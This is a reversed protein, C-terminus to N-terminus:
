VRMVSFPCARLAGGPWGIGFAAMCHLLGSGKLETRWNRRNRALDINKRTKAAGTGDGSRNFVPWFVEMQPKAGNEAGAM